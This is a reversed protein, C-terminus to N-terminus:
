EEIEYTTGLTVTTESYVYNGSRSNLRAFKVTVQTGAPYGKIFKQLEEITAVSQGGIAVIIDGRQLGANYAAGNEYITNIVVGSHLEDPLEAQEAVDETLSFGKIGLFTRPITNMLEEIIPIADSIPIAYGMGEVITGGTKAANIGIVEGHINLLAGGSNGPNIAADTQIYYRGEENALERHLASICGTTVSQGYGLANGIAIAPEGVKLDDSSGMTAIAIAEKTEESLDDLNVAIVALDKEAATGKVHASGITEDIFQVELQETKEIVHYNTVILLENNNQAVIIGSGTTGGSQTQPGYFLDNYTVTYYSKIAVVAPMVAGAVDSVDLVTATVQRDDSSKLLSATTNLETQQEIYESLENGSRSPQQAQQLQVPQMAVVRDEYRSILQKMGYIGAGVFLGFFATLLVAAIAIGWFNSKKKKPGRKGTEPEPTRYAIESYGTPVQYYAGTYPQGAGPNSGNEGGFAQKSGAAAVYYQPQAQQMPQQMPQAQQMPQQVPQAQQMPQQVQQMPQQMPQIPTGQAFVPQVPQPPVPQAMPQVPQYGRYSYTGYQPQQVPQVPQSAPQVPTSEQISPAAEQEVADSQPSAQPQQNIETSNIEDDTFM